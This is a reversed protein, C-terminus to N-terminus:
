PGRAPGASRSRMPPWPRSTTATRDFASAATRRISESAAPDSPGGSSASRMADAFALQLTRSLARLRQVTTGSRVHRPQRSILTKWAEHMAQAARHRAASEGPSGVADVYDAVANGGAAVAAREPERPGLVAGILHVASALVGGSLVLLASHLPTQHAAHLGTGVACVLAFQYAGPPGVELANCVLTAVTAIAAVVLVGLWTYTAAWIGLGVAISLSVAVTALLQARNLYPRGSGYLATFAGLTAMLGAGIDGALWGVLVPLAMCTAARLAQPWRLPATRMEVMARWGRGAPAPVPPTTM